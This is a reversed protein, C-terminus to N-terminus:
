SADHRMCFPYYFVCFQIEDIILGHKHKTLFSRPDSVAEEYVDPNEINVYDHKPFCQKALTTKGSQRPGTISIIPMKGSMYKIQKILTRKIMFCIYTYNKVFISDFEM